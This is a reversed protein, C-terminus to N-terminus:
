SVVLKAAIARNTLWAVQLALVESERHTLGLHACPWFEGSRLRSASLAVRGALAPDILM